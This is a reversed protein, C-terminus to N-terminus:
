PEVVAGEVPAALSPRTEMPVMMSQAAIASAATLTIGQGLNAPALKQSILGLMLANALHFLAGCDAFILLPRSAFLVDWASPRAAYATDEPLLGRAVAHDITAGLVATAAAVSAIATFIMSVFLVPAMLGVFASIAISAGISGPDWGHETMLYVGLFAGLGYRADSVFFSLADLAREAQARLADPGTM